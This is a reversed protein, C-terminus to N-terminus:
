RGSRRRVQHRSCFALGPRRAPRRLPRGLGARFATVWLRLGCQIASSRHHLGTPSRNPSDPKPFQHQVQHDLGAPSSPPRHRHAPLSHTRHTRNPSTPAQVRHGPGALSTPPRVRYAPQPVRETLGTQPLRRSFETAPDPRRLRHRRHLDLPPLANTSGLASASVRVRDGLGTASATRGLGTVSGRRPHRHRIDSASGTASTPPAHRHRVPPRSRDRIHTVRGPRRLRHTSDTASSPPRTRHDRGTTSASPRTRDGLNTNSGHRLQHGFGPCSNTASVPPWARYRSEAIASAQPRVAPNPSQARSRFGHHLDTASSLPAVQHALAAASGAASTTAFEIPFRHRTRHGHRDGCDATSSSPPIRPRSQHGFETVSVTASDPPAAPTPDPPRQRHGLGCASSPRRLPPRVRNGFETATGSSPPRDTRDTNPSPPRLQNGPDTTSVLRQM